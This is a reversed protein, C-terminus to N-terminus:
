NTKVEKGTISINGDAMKINSEKCTMNIEEKATIVIKKQSDLMIDEQSIVKIKKNSFIQIGDSDNLRILIQNDKASILIENPSMMLEKGAATRFYKIDPNGLKNTEGEESNKRVSSLAIADEEKSSPFYVRVHDGLEPMCYWGSHGEATYVSSYPFWYAEGVSQEKDIELHVKVNDKAVKIVRGQVSAGVIGTHYITNQSMGKQSCFTYSHKLLGEKMKTFVESVYLNKGKFSVRNGIELVKDTEVQYYIFENEDIGPIYNESSVRYTSMRKKVTYNFDEINGKSGGDPVGFYFKPKGAGCASVLGTHFRSAMRKLFQWDTEQYQITFTGLKAGKSALDMVDVDTYDSVVQQVLASYSMNLNQFSRSKRKVDLDYSHSIAEVEMYYIDRVAKVEINLVKGTFLPISSGNESVQRVEIQTDPDTMEVYRDKLEQPVIGTFRLRDHENVKKSITLELLHALDYPKVLLNHYATVSSSM